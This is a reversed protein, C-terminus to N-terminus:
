THHHFSFLNHWFSSQIKCQGKCQIGKGEIKKMKDILKQGDGHALGNLDYDKLAKNIFKVSTLEKPSYEGGLWYLGTQAVISCEPDDQITTQLEPVLQYNKNKLDYFTHTYVGNKLDSITFISIALVNDIDFRRSTGDVLYKDLFFNIVVPIQKNVDKNKLTQQIHEFLASYEDASLEFDILGYQEVGFQALSLPGNPAGVWDREVSDGTFPQGFVKMRQKEFTLVAALVNASSLSMLCALLLLVTSKKFMVNLEINLRWWWSLISMLPLIAM